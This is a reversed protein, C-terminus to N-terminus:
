EKLRWFCVFLCATSSRFFFRSILFCCSVVLGFLIRGVFVVVFVLLSSKATWWKWGQLGSEGPYRLGGGGREPADGWRAGARASGTPHGKQFPHSTVLTQLHTRCERRSLKVVIASKQMHVSWTWTNTLLCISRDLINEWIYECVLVTHTFVSDTRTCLHLCICEAALSFFFGCCDENATPSAPGPTELSSSRQLPLWQSHNSLFSRWSASVVTQIESDGYGRKTNM